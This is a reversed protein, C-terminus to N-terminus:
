VAAQPLHGGRSYLFTIERGCPWHYIAQSSPYNVGRSVRRETIGDFAYQLGMQPHSAQKWRPSVSPVQRSPSWPTDDITNGASVAVIPAQPKQPNREFDFGLAEIGLRRLAASWGASGCCLEAASPQRKPATTAVTVPIPRAYSRGAVVTITPPGEAATNSHSPSPDVQSLDDTTVNQNTADDQFVPAQAQTSTM